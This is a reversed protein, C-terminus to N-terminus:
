VHCLACPKPPVGKSVADAPVPRRWISDSCTLPRHTRRRNLVEKLMRIFALMEGPFCRFCLFHPRLPRHLTRWHPRARTRRPSLKPSLVLPAIKEAASGAQSIPSGIAGGSDYPSLPIAPRCRPILACTRLVKVSKKNMSGVFINEQSVNILLRQIFRFIM